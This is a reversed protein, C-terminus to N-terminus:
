LIIKAVFKFYRNSDMFPGDPISMVLYANQFTSGGLVEYFNPDTVSINEYIIHRYQFRAQTKDPQPHTICLNAVKVITLSYGIGLVKPETVYRYENGFLYIPQEPPHLSLVDNVSMAGVIKWAQTEDILVNEPQTPLPVARVVPVSVVDFPEIHEGRQDILYRGTLAGHVTQDSSVFRVWDGTNIDIGAVCYGGYKSSKTLIVAEMTKERDM